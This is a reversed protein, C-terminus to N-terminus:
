DINWEYDSNLIPLRCPPTPAEKGRITVQRIEGYKDRLKAKDPSRNLLEMMLEYSIRYLDNEVVRKMEPPSNEHLREALSQWYSLRELFHVDGRLGDNALFNMFKQFYPSFLIEVYTWCNNDILAGLFTNKGSIIRIDSLYQFGDPFRNFIGELKQMSEAKYNKSKTDLTSVSVCFSDFPNRNINQEAKLSRSNNSIGQNVKPVVMQDSAAAVDYNQFKNGSFKLHEQGDIDKLNLDANRANLSSM